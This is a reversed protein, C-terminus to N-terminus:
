CFPSRTKVGQLVVCGEFDGAKTYDSWLGTKQDVECGIGILKQRFSSRSQVSNNLHLLHIGSVDSFLEVQAGLVVLFVREKAMGYAMGAEFIVNPRAQWREKDAKSDRSKRFEPRLSSFEDATFLAVIGQAQRMGERVIDGIFASGGVNAALEDFDIPDLKLSRLFHEVAVVANENRGHIIFVKRADPQEEPMPVEELFEM